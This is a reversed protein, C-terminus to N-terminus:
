ICTQQTPSLIISRESCRSWSWAQKSWENKEEGTNRFLRENSWPERTLRVLEAQTTKRDEIPKLSPKRDNRGAKRLKIDGSRKSAIGRDLEEDIALANGDVDLIEDDVGESCKDNTLNVPCTLTSPSSSTSASSSEERLLAKRSSEFAKEVKRKEQLEEVCDKVGIQVLSNHVQEWKLGLQFDSKRLCESMAIKSAHCGDVAKSMESFSEAVLPGLRQMGEQLIAAQKFFDTPRPNENTLQKLKSQLSSLESCMNEDPLSTTLNSEAMKVFRGLEDLCDNSM